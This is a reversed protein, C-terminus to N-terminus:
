WKKHHALVLPARARISSGFAGSGLSTSTSATTTGLAAVATATDGKSSTAPEPVGYVVVLEPASPPLDKAQERM